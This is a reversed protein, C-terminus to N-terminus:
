EVEAPARLGLQRALEDSIPLRGWMAKDRGAAAAKARERERFWENARAMEAREASIEEDTSATVDPDDERMEAKVSEWHSVANARHADTTGNDYVEADLVADIRALEEDIDLLM